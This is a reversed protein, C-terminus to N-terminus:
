NERFRRQGRGPAERLLEAQGETIDGSVVAQDILEDRASQINERVTGPDLGLEEVLERLTKGDDRATQLEDPTIGLALALVDDPEVARALAARALIRDAREGALRGEEVALEVTVTLAEQRAAELQDVTINLADALAADLIQRGRHIGREQYARNARVRPNPRVPRPNDALLRGQEPTILGSAVAAEIAAARAEALNQRISGPDLELARALQRPSQGEDRAAQLEAASIGLAQALIEDRDLTALFASRARMLAAREKSILGEAVMQELAVDFAEQRASEYSKM